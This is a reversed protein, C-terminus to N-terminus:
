TRSSRLPCKGSPIESPIRLTGKFSNPKQVVFVCFPLTYGNKIKGKKVGAELLFLFIVKVCSLSLGPLEYGRGQAPGDPYTIAAGTVSREPGRGAVATVALAAYM